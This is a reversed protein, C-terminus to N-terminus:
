KKVKITNSTSAQIGDAATLVGVGKGVIWDGGGLIGGGRDELVAVFKGGTLRM